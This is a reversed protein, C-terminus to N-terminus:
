SVQKQKQFYGNVVSNLENAEITEKELLRKAVEQLLPYHMELLEVTEQYLKKSLKKMEEFAYAEGEPLEKLNLLVPEPQLGCEKVMMELLQTARLIDQQAGTTVCNNNRKFYLFEAARGAYLVKIEAELEERTFLGMKEQVNFTFGGAGSTTSLITVKSIDGIGLLKRCVAHGAEHHAVIKLEEENRKTQSSKKIHGKLIKKYYAEDICEKTIHPLNQRVSLITAENLVSEIDAGSFGVWQRALEELQVDDAIERDKAHLKIIELREEKTSPLPIAIHSDFRGSRTLAPDLNDPRNTTALVLIGSDKEFGDMEALLANITQVRETNIDHERKEGVADLEDIFIICPTNNRAAEFLQRVRKAGLGVFMEVFDSGSVSYFPVGAEGAIARAFLTKGTGPPGYLLVGKPMKAGSKRFQEPNKLYEVYMMLDQKQEEYGAVDDFTIQPVSVPIDLKKGSGGIGGIGGIGSSSFKWLFYLVFTTFGITLLKSVVSLFDIEGDTRVDIGKELLEKKFNEYGPNTMTYVEGNKHVITLQDSEQHFIVRDIEENELAEQFELYAMKNTTTVQNAFYTGILTIVVVALLIKKWHKQLFEKVLM